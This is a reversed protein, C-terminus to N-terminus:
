PRPLAAKTSTPLLYGFPPPIPCGPHFPAFWTATVFMKSMNLNNGNTQPSQSVMPYEGQYFLMWSWKRWQYHFVMARQLQIHSIHEEGLIYWKNCFRFVLYISIAPNYVIYFFDKQKYQIKSIILDDIIGGNNNLLFSYYCRNFNVKDVNYM